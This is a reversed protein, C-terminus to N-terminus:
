LSKEIGDLMVNIESRLKRLVIKANEVSERQVIQKMEDEWKGSNKEAAPEASSKKAAKPTEAKDTDLISGERVFHGDQGIYGYQYDKSRKGRPIKKEVEGTNINKRAPIREEGGLPVEVEAQGTSKIKAKKKAKGAM